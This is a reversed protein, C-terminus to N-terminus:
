ITAEQCGHQGDITNIGSFSNSHTRPCLCTRWARLILSGGEPPEQIKPAQFDSPM